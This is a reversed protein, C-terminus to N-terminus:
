RQEPQGVFHRARGLHLVEHAVELENATHEFRLVRASRTAPQARAPGRLNWFPALPKSPTSGAVSRREDHASASALASIRDDSPVCSARHRLPYTAISSHDSPHLTTGTVPRPRFAISARDCEA